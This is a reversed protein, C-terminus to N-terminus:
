YMLLFGRAVEQTSFNLRISKQMIRRDTTREDRCKSDSSQYVKEEGPLLSMSHDNVSEVRENTPAFITRGQFYDPDYMNSLLDPYVFNLLDRFLDESDGILMDDPIELSAGFPKDVQLISKMTTDLAEFCNMHMMPAENWMILKARIMLEVQPSQQTISYTSTEHVTIPLRFRFNTTRGGILLLSSIGSSAVNIVIEGKSRVNFNKVWKLGDYDLEDLVLINITDEVAFEISFPMPVYNRLSKGNSQLIKEVKTLTYNMLSEDSISLDPNNHLWQEIYAIGEALGSCCSQWVHEPRSLSNSLLMVAFLRRIYDGSAWANVERIADMYEKNDDLLSLVYCADRFTPYVYDAVKRIDEYCRLDRAHPYSTNVEFWALFMMQKASQRDLVSKLSKNENFVLECTSLYRCEYYMKIEDRIEACGDINRREYFATTVRNHGKNAYKFMYKISMNQNCLEINIHSRYKSLIVWNYPVVFGNDLTTKKKMVTIGDERRRYVTYGYTDSETRQVFPKPFRKTCVRDKMCPSKLNAQGCPGHIMYKEVLQYMKKDTEEDPIELCIIKDIEEPTKPKDDNHLWLLIHAYPLGRKQFEITWVDPSSGKYKLGNLIAHSPSSCLQFDENTDSLGDLKKRVTKRIFDDEISYSSQSSM